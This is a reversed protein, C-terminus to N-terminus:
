GTRGSIDINRGLFIATFDGDFDLGSQGIEEPIDPLIHQGFIVLDDDNGGVFSGIFLDFFIEGDGAKEDRWPNLQGKPVLKDEVKLRM